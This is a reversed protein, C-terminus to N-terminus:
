PQRKRLHLGKLADAIFEDVVFGLASGGMSGGFTLAVQKASTNLAPYYPITLASGAANGAILAFNPTTHGSDTRTIISRTGAYIARKFFNHGSGMIYYRPDEHFVPAFVSESLINESTARIAAAGLRQGFAGRDTGYNPSGNTLQEWGAAAFWGAASFLSFSDALGGVVKDHVTMTRAMEGPSVTMQLHGSYKPTSGTPSQGSGEGPDISSSTAADNTLVGPADPLDVGQTVATANIPESASPNTKAVAFTSTALLLAVTAYLARSTSQQHLHISNRLNSLITV